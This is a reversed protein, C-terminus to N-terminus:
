NCSIPINEVCASLKGGKHVELASYYVKGTVSGESTIVLKDKAVIEGEFCGKIVANEVQANGVFKGSSEITLKKLDIDTQIEGELTLSDCDGIEGKLKINKSINLEKLEEKTAFNHGKKYPIEIPPRILEASYRPKENKAFDKNKKLNPYYVLESESALNKAETEQNKKKFGFMVTEGTKQAL